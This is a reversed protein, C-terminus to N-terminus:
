VNGTKEEESIIDIQVDDGVLPKQKLARFVGKARCRYITGGSYVEYFGAISKIIKGTVPM